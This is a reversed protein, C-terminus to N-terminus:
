IAAPTKTIELAALAARRKNVGEGINGYISHFDTEQLM